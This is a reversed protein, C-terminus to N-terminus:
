TTVLSRLQPHKPYSVQKLLCNKKWRRDVWYLYRFQRLKQSTARERNDQLHKVTKNYRKTDTPSITMQINHYVEDDLTWFVAIHEGFFEFNAAQYVVGFRGCREDAFSQIWKVEPYRQKIFKISYSIAMSESNRPAKDDLWMRNLELYNELETGGVISGGSAPNLAAGFQLVGVLVGGMYVGLHISTGAYVKKSYHNQIILDNAITRGIEKIHFDSDGFGVITRKGFLAGQSSYIFDKM